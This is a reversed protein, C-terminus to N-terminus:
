LACICCYGDLYVKFKDKDARRDWYCDNKREAEDAVKSAPTLKLDSSAGTKKREDDPLEDEAEERIRYHM